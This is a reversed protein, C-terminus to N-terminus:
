ASSSPSANRPAGSRGCCTSAVNSTVGSGGGGSRITGGGVFILRALPLADGGLRRELAVSTM